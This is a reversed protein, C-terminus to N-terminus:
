QEVTVNLLRSMLAAFAETEVPAATNNWSGTIAFWRGDSHQALFTMNIVGTESGGKYGLYRWRGSDGAGVGKNISMISLMTDNRMAQMHSLLMVLDAPSAFWEITDIHAPATLLVSPDVQTTYLANRNASLLQAQGRDDSDEFAVRLPALAPMKLAFAERTGLFPIMDAPNSHGSKVVREGVKNRGLTFLLTDTATNDSISIMLSALSHMTMPAGTPWDQTIGSPLSKSNLPAVDSWKRKGRAVQDTLEALIYLKFTSGIAFRGDANHGAIPRPGQPTLEAVAFGAFGPLAAFDRSIAAYSDGSQRFGSILLGVVRHPATPELVLEVEAIGKPFDIEIQGSFPGNKSVVRAAVAQGYQATLSQAVQRLQSPPVAALFAPSFIQDINDVGNIFLVVDNARSQYIADAGGQPTTQARAPATLMAASALTLLLGILRAIGGFNRM